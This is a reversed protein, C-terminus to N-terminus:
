DDGELIRDPTALQATLDADLLAEVLQRTGGVAVENSYIPAGVFWSRDDPWVLSPPDASVAAFALATDLPGTWLYYARGPLELPRVDPREPLRARFWAGAEVRAQEIEAETPPEAGEEWVVKVGRTETGPDLWFGFGEWMGCHVPQAGTFPGLADILDAFRCVPLVAYAEYGLPVAHGLEAGFPALRESIWAGAEPTAEWGLDLRM